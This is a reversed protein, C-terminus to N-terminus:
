EECVGTDALAIRGGIDRGSLDVGMERRPGEKSENSCDM